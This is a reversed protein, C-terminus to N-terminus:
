ESNHSLFNFFKIFSLLRVRFIFDINVMKLLLGLSIYDIFSTKDYIEM